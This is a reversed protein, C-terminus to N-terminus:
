RTRLLAAGTPTLTHLVTNSCRRSFILGAERLVATHYSATAPSVDLARALETTTAGVGAVRLAAARTQGLLADLSAGGPAAGTGAHSLPYLLAPEREPDAFTVPRYRCFYSPVLRLGRGNLHVDRDEVYDVELVPSRWRVGPGLGSLLGDVGGDLLARGLTARESDFEARMRDHHPAIVASHYARLVGVIEERARRQVLGGAWSPAGVRRALTELEGRVRDPPTDLIAAFGADLGDAAEPPTLFDPFYDARPLLQHLTGRVAAGLPTRTLKPLAVRFWDAYARRGRTDQLRHLSFAVEWLPDPSGAIRVRALDEPTFHIRLMRGGLAAGEGGHCPGRM